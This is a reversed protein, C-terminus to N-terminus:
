CSMKDTAAVCNNYLPHSVKDSRYYITQQSGGAYWFTKVLITLKPFEDTM